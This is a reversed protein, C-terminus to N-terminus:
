DGSDYTMDLGCKKCRGPHWGREHNAGPADEKEHECIAFRGCLVEHTPYSSRYRILYGSGDLSSSGMGHLLFFYTWQKYGDFLSYGWQPEMMHGRCALDSAIRNLPLAEFNPPEIEGALIPKFDDLSYTTAPSLDPM